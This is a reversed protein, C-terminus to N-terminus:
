APAEQHQQHLWKLRFLPFPPPSSLLFFSETFCWFTSSLCCNMLGLMLLHHDSPVELMGATGDLFTSIGLLFHRFVPSAYKINPRWLPVSKKGYVEKIGTKAHNRGLVLITAYSFNQVGESAGRGTNRAARNALISLM